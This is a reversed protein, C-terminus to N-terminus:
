MGNNSSETFHYNNSNGNSTRLVPAGDDPHDYEVVELVDAMEGFAEDECANSDYDSEKCADRVSHISREPEVVTKMTRHHNYTSLGHFGNVPFIFTKGIVRM